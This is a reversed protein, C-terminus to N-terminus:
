TQGIYQLALQELRSWSVDTENVACSRIGNSRCFALNEYVLQTYDINQPALQSSSLYNAHMFALEIQESALEAALMKLYCDSINSKMLADSEGYEKVRRRIDRLPQTIQAAWNVDDIALSKIRYNKSALWLSFLIQNIRCAQEDQLVLLTESVEPQAYFAKAFDWLENEIKM